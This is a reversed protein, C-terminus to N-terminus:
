MTLWPETLCKKRTNFKAATIRGRKRCNKKTANSTENSVIYKYEQELQIILGKVLKYITKLALTITSKKNKNFVCYGYIKDGNHCGTFSFNAGKIYLGLFVFM